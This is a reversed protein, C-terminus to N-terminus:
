LSANDANPARLSISAVVEAQSSTAAFAFRATVSSGSSVVFSSVSPRTIAVDVSLISPSERVKTRVYSSVTSKEVKSEVAIVMVSAASPFPTASDPVGVSPISPVVIVM